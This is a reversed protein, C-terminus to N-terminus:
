RRTVTPRKLGEGLGIEHNRRRHRRYLPCRIHKATTCRNWYEWFGPVTRVRSAPDRCYAPVLTEELDPQRHLYPCVWSGVGRRKPEVM